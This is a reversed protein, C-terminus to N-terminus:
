PGAADVPKGALLRLCCRTAPRCEGREDLKSFALPISAASTNGSETVDRPSSPTSPASGPPRLPEIIRQNAQNGPRGRRLDEPALGAKECAQRAVVPAPHRGLPKSARARRRSRAADWRDAGRAMDPVSGVAGARIGGGRGPRLAGGRRRGPGTASSCAPPATPGTTVDTKKDAGRGLVRSAGGARVPPDATALAHTFGACVVNLDNVAPGPMVLRAAVRAAM